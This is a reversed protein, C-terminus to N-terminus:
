GHVRRLWRAVERALDDPGRRELRVMPSGGAGAYPTLARWGDAVLVWSTWGVRREPAVAVARLRGVTARHLRGAQRRLPGDAGAVLEDYLDPRNQALSTGTGVLLEWPLDPGDAPPPPADDPVDVRCLRGLEDRWASVDLRQSPVGGGGVTEVVGGGLVHRVRAHEVAEGRRVALDVTVLLDPTSM